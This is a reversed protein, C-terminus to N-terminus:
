RDDGDPPAIFGQFELPNEGDIINIHLLENDEHQRNSSQREKRFRRCHGTNAKAKSEGDWDRKIVSVVWTIHIVSGVPAIPVVVAAAIVAVARVTIAVVFAAIVAITGIGM